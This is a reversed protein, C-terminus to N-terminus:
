APKMLTQSSTDWRWLQENTLETNGWWRHIPNYRAFDAQRAVLAQGLRSLSLVSENYVRYRDKDKMLAMNFPGPPLGLVAPEPCHCLDDLREGADFGMYLKMKDARHYDTMVQFFKRSKDGVLHLLTTETASLGTEVAPLEKLLRILCDRMFPFGPQAEEALKVIDVPTSQRWAAWIRSATQLHRETVPSRLPRLTVVEEPTCEAVWVGLQIIVLRQILDADQRAYDLFHVLALQDNPIPAFWLEVLEFTKCFELLGLDEQHFQHNWWPGDEKPWVTYQVGEQPGFFLATDLDSPLPGNILRSGLPTVRDAIRAMKLCGASSFDNTIILRTM